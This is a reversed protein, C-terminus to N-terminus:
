RDTEACSHSDGALDRAQTSFNWGHQLETNAPTCYPDSISIATLQSSVSALHYWSKTTGFKQTAKFWAANKRKKNQHPTRQKQSSSHIQPVHGKSLYYHRLFTDFETTNRLRPNSSQQMNFTWPVARSSEPSIHLSVHAPSLIPQSGM